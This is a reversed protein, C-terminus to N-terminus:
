RDKAESNISGSMLIWTPGLERIAVFVDRNKQLAAMQKYRRAAIM